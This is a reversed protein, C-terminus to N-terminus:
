LKQQELTRKICHVSDGPELEDSSGNFGVGCEMGKTVSKVVNKHHRLSKLSGEFKVKGGNLVQYIISTNGSATLEQSAEKFLTGDTVRCGCITDKGNNIQFLQLIEAKGIVEDVQKPTVFGSALSKFQDLLKYIINENLFSVGAQKLSDTIQKDPPPQNFSILLTSKKVNKSNSTTKKVSALLDVDSPTVQGVSSHLLKIHISENTEKICKAEIAKLAHWIAEVSGKVDGKLIVNIESSKPEDTSKDTGDASTQENQERRMQIIEKELAAIEKIYKLYVHRTGKLSPLKGKKKEFEEIKRELSNSEVIRKKGIAALDESAKEQKIVDEYQTLYKKALSENEVQVGEDGCNPVSSWYGIIECPTAPTAEKLEQGNDDFLKRVKCYVKGSDFVLVSGPKLTGAQILVSSLIGKGKDVKAEIVTAECPGAADQKLDMMDSQLLICEELMDLGTGKIASIEVCQVDGGFDEPHIEYDLLQRKVKEPNAGIKDCKTIAVLTPVEAAKAHNIAEVTQPMVGDDAAVVLIVLDTVKVGRARMATFAAHGPTDLFTIRRSSPLLVSFAGIHQTIGGAESKAVSTKRLADLLSTKGHDVHGVVTVVPPRSSLTALLEKSPPPRKKPGLTSLDVKEEQPSFGFEMALLGSIDNDLEQSEKNIAYGLAKFSKHRLDQYKINLLRALEVAPLTKPLMISKKPTEITNKTGADKTKSENKSRLDRASINNELALKNKGNFAKTDPRSMPRESSRKKNLAAFLGDAKYRLIRCRGIM